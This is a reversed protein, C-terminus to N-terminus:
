VYVEQALHCNLSPVFVNGLDDFALLLVHDPIVTVALATLAITHCPPRFEGKDFLMGNFAREFRVHNETARVM